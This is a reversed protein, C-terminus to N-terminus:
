NKSKDHSKCKHKHSSWDTKQCDVSCYRAKHCRSCNKSALEQCTQCAKNELVLVYEKDLCAKKIPASAVTGYGPFIIGPADDNICPYLDKYPLELVQQNNTLSDLISLTLNEPWFSTRSIIAGEKTFFEVHFVKQAAATIIARIGYDFGILQGKRINRLAKFPVFGEETIAVKDAYVNAVAVSSIDFTDDAEFQTITPLLHLAFRAGNGLKAADTVFGSASSLIHVSKNENKIADEQSSIAGTYVFVTEGKQIDAGAFLGYGVADSIKKVVLPAQNINQAERWQIGFLEGANDPNILILEGDKELYTNNRELVPKNTANLAFSLLIVPLYLFKMM